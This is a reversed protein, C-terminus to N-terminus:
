LKVFTRTRYMWYLILWIIALSASYAMVEDWRGVRPLLSGVFINGIKRFDFLETAMYVALANMGIVTFPFVWKRYGLVDILLYFTAMMLCSIGGAVLVFSSTWLLKIIPLWISWVLGFVLLGAGYGYLTICKFKKTRNSLLLEGALVGLLVSAAFGLYSLFWTNEQGLPLYYFRGLVLRDIYTAANGTPTLVGRGVGPVPIMLLLIWYSVLFVATTIAQGKAKFNMTVVTAILYGAAIGHLVSYFPHFTALDFQLLNGQAIMGLIFLIVARKIAHAYISRHSENMRKRKAISFSLSVGVMFMFLTWIVDFGHLGSWSVHEFQASVASSVRGPWVKALGRIVFQGGIIWLMDFGRLGDLSLLRAAGTPPETRGTLSSGQRPLTETAMTEMEAKVPIM